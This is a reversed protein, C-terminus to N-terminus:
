KDLDLGPDWFALSDLMRTALLNTPPISFLPLNNNVSNRSLNSKLPLYEGITVSRNKKVKENNEIVTRM